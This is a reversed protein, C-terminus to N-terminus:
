NEEKPLKIEGEILKVLTTYIELEKDSLCHVVIGRMPQDLEMGFVQLQFLIVMSLLFMKAKTM